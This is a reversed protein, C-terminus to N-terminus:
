KCSPPLRRTIGFSSRKDKRFHERAVSELRAKEEEFGEISVLEGRDFDGLIEAEESTPHMHNKM